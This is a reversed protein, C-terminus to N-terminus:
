ITAIGHESDMDARWQQLLQAAFEAFVRIKVNNKQGALYVASIPPGAASYEALVQELRNMRIPGTVLMDIAQTIGGGDLAATIMADSMNFSMAFPLALQQRQGKIAFIWRRLRGHTMFGLLRHRRLETPSRPRGARELYAPAACTVWRTGCIRRAILNPDRVAGVRIAVDVREEVLNAVADNFNLQLALDPYRAAFKPLAPVLLHRGFAIPVDVRLHGQPKQRADRLADEAASIEGLIRQCRELYEAGDASLAVRRTTRHLLQTGLHRELDAIQASVVARSLGLMDAARSFSKLEGVRVFTQIASLKDM